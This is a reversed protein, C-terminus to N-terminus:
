QLAAKLKDTLQTVKKDSAAQSQKAKALRSKTETVAKQKKTQYENVAKQADAVAALLDDYVQHSVTVAARADDVAMQFISEEQPGLTILDNLEKQMRELRAQARQDQAVMDPYVEEVSKRLEQAGALAAVAADSTPNAKLAKEADAEEQAAEQVVNRWEQLLVTTMSARRTADSVAKQAAPIQPHKSPDAKFTALDAIRLALVKNAIDLDYQADAVSNNTDSVSSVLNNLAADEPSQLDSLAQEAAAVEEANKAADAQATKLDTAAQDAAARLKKSKDVLFANQATASAGPPVALLAVFCALFAAALAVRETSTM